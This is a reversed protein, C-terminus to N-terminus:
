SFCVGPRRCVKPRGTPTVTSGRPPSIIASPRDFVTQRTVGARGGAGGRRLRETLRAASGTLPPRRPKPRQLRAPSLGSVRRGPRL